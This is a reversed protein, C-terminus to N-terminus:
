FFAVRSHNDYFRVVDEKPIMKKRLLNCTRFVGRQILRYVTKESINLLAAAENVTYALKEFKGGTLTPTETKM